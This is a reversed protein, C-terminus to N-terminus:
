PEHNLPIINAECTFPRSNSEQQTWKKPRKRHENHQFALFTIKKERNRDPPNFHNGENALCGPRLEWLAGAAIMGRVLRGMTTSSVPVENRCMNDACDEAPRCGFCGLGVTRPETSRLTSQVVYTHSRPDDYVNQIFLLLVHKLESSFSTTYMTTAVHWPHSSGPNSATTPGPGAAPVLSGPASSGRLKGRPKQSECHRQAGVHPRKTM